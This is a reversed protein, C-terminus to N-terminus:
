HSPYGAFEAVMAAGKAMTALEVHKKTKKGPGGAARGHMEIPKPGGGIM